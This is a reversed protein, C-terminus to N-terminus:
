AGCSCITESLAIPSSYTPQLFVASKEAEQAGLKPIAAAMSAVAIALGAVAAVM